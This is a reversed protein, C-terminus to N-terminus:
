PAIVEPKRFEEKLLWAVIVVQFLVFLIRAAIIAFLESSTNELSNAVTGVVITKLYLVDKFLLSPVAHLFLLVFLSLMGWRRSTKWYILQIIAMDRLAVLAWSFCWLAFVTGSMGTSLDKSFFPFVLSSVLLTLSSLIWAPTNHLREKAPCFYLWRRWDDQSKKQSLSIFYAAYVLLTSFTVFKLATLPFFEGHINLIVLVAFSLHLFPVVYLKAKELLDQSLMWIAFLFCWFSNLVLYFCSKLVDWHTKGAIQTLPSSESDMLPVPALSAEFAGPKLLESMEGFFVGNFILFVIMIAVFFPGSRSESKYFLAIALALGVQNLISLFGYLYAYGYQYATVGAGTSAYFLVFPIFILCCVFPFLSPGLIKGLAIQCSSLPTMRMLDWTKESREKIFSDAVERVCWFSLLVYHTSILIRAIMSREEPFVSLLTVGHGKSVNYFLIILINFFAGLTLATLIRKSSFEEKSSRYVEPSRYFFSELSSLFANLM